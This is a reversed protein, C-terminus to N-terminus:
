VLTRVLSVGSSRCLSRPPSNGWPSRDLGEYRDFVVPPRAWQRALRNLRGTELNQDTCLIFDSTHQGQDTHRDRGAYVGVVHLGYAVVRGRAM